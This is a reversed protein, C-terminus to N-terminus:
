VVGPSVRDGEILWLVDVDLAAAIRRLNEISPRTFGEEYNRITNSTVDAAVALQIRKM